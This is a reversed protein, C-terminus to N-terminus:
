VMLQMGAFMYAMSGAMIAMSINVQWGGHGLSSVLARDGPGVANGRGERADDCWGVLWAIAEATFYVVLAWTFVAVWSSMPMWMYIMAAQQVLALVWLYSFPRKGVVRAIMWVAMVVTTVSYVAVWVESPIANWNFAMMAYMYLMGILMVIHSAHYWRHQGGIHVLHGCHFILVAALAVIWVVSVWMPLLDLHDSMGAMDSMGSMSDMGSSSHMDSMTGADASASESMGHMPATANPTASEMPMGAMSSSPSPTATHASHDEGNHAFTIM